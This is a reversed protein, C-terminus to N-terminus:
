SNIGIYSPLATGSSLTCTYVMNAICTGIKFADFTATLMSDGVFYTLPSLSSPIIDKSTSCYINGRRDFNYTVIPFPTLLNTTVSTYTFTLFEWTVTTASSVTFSSTVTDQSISFCTLSPDISLVFAMRHPNPEFENFYSEGSFYMNTM